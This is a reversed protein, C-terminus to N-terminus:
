KRCAMRHCYKLIFCISFNCILKKSVIQFEPQIKDQGISASKRINAANGELYEEIFVIFMAYLVIWNVLFKMVIAVFYIKYNVKLTISNTVGFYFQIRKFTRAAGSWLTVMSLARCIIQKHINDSQQM